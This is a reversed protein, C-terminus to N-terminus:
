KLVKGNSKAAWQVTRKVAGTNPAKAKFPTAGTVNPVGVVSSSTVATPNTVGHSPNLQSSNPSTMYESLASDSANLSQGALESQVDRNDATNKANPNVDGIVDTGVVLDTMFYAPKGGFIHKISLVTWYGSLGNPLGDLYVPDYVQLTPHGAVTVEARHQYRHADSYADAIAQSEALSTSVEHTHHKKFVARSSANPTNNSFNSM